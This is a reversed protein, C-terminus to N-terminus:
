SGALDARIQEALALATAFPVPWDDHTAGGVVEDPRYRPANRDANVAECHEPDSRGELMALIAQQWTVDEPRVEWTSGELIPHGFLAFVALIFTACTLGRGAPCQLLDGTAKDFCVGDSNFAYPIAPHKNAIRAVLAALVIKNDLDLSIQTWRFPSSALEDRLMHHFALHLVRAQGNEIYLIGSHYGLETQHIALGLREVDGFPADKAALIPM